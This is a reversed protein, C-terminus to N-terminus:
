RFEDLLDSLAIAGNLKTLVSELQQAQVEALAAKEQYIEVYDGRSYRNYKNVRSKAADLELIVMRRLFLLEMTTFEVKTGCCRWRALPGGQTAGVPRVVVVCGVAYLLTTLSIM